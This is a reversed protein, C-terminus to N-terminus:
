AYALVHISAQRCNQLNFDSCQLRPLKNCWYIYTSKEWAELFYAWTRDGTKSSWYVDWFRVAIRLCHLRLHLTLPSHISSSISSQKKLKTLTVPDENRSVYIFADWWVEQYITLRSNAAILLPNLLV